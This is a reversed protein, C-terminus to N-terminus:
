FIHLKERLPATMGWTVRGGPALPSVWRVGAVVGEISVASCSHEFNINDNIGMGISESMSPKPDSFTCINLKTELYYM